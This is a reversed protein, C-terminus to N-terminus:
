PMDVLKPGILITVRRNLERGEPTDNGAVPEYSSRGVAELHSPPLGIRHQFFRVVSSARAASLEWNTPYVSRYEAKIPVNDTHGVVRVPRDKVGKLVEGVKWLVKEGEPTIAATGSPFLISGLVEVSILEKVQEIRVERRKLEERLETLLSEYANRMTELEGDEGQAKEKLEGTEDRLGGEMAISPAPDKELRDSSGPVERLDTKIELMRKESRDRHKTLAITIEGREAEGAEVEAPLRRVERSFNGSDKRALELEREISLRSARETELLERTEVLSKRSVLGLAVAVALALFLIILAANKM